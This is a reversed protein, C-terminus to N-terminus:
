KLQPEWSKMWLNALIVALSADMILGDNQCYWSENSKFHVNTVALELLRKMTKRPTDPKDDRTQKKLVKALGYLMAPQAGAFRLDEDAKVLIKGKKRIDLLEKNPENEIKMVIDCSKEFKQVTRLRKSKGNERHEHEKEYCM